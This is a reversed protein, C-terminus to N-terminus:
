VGELIIEDKNFADWVNIPMTCSINRIDAKVVVSVM